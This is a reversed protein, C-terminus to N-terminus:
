EEMPIVGEDDVEEGDADYGEEEHEDDEDDEDDEDEWDGEYEEDGDGDEYEDGNRESKGDDHEAAAADGGGETVEDMAREQELWRAWDWACDTEAAQYSHWAQAQVAEDETIQPPQGILAENVFATWGAQDHLTPVDSQHNKDQPRLIFGRRIEDDLSLRAAIEAEEDGEVEEESMWDDDRDDDESDVGCFAMARLRDDEDEERIDQQQRPTLSDWRKKLVHKRRWHQVTDMHGIAREEDSIYM